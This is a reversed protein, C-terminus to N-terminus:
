RDRSVPGLGARPPRCRRQYRGQRLDGVGLSMLVSAEGIRDGTERCLALAHQLHSTARRHRGQQLDVVGLNGLASAEAARDGAQRAARRAQDHVVSAEPFYGGSDLYRFLTVALRNAHDPWGNAAAHSTAAVLSARETDLWARAAGDDVVLPSPTRPPATRPRWHQEAPALTDMAAAATHLYYDFLRTLAARREQESDQATALERAYGRLLDHM